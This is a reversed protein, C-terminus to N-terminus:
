KENLLIVNMRFKSTNKDYSVDLCGGYKQSIARIQKIGFGHELLDKKSTELSEINRFPSPNEIYIGIYSGKKYLKIVVLPNDEKNWPVSEIVNDLANGFLVALDMQNIKIDTDLLNILEVKAGQKIMKTYAIAIVADVAPLKSFLFHQEQIQEALNSIYQLAEDTAGSSLLGQLAIISSKLDHKIQKLKKQDEYVQRYRQEQVKLMKKLYQYEKWQVERELERNTKVIVLLMLPLLLLIILLCLLLQFFDSDLSAGGYNKMISNLLIFAILLCASSLLFIPLIWFKKQKRKFTQLYGFLFLITYTCCLTPLWVSEEYFFQFIHELHGENQILLTGLVLGIEILFLSFSHFTHKWSPSYFTPLLKCLLMMCAFLAPTYWLLGLITWVIGIGSFLIVKRLDIKWDIQWYGRFIYFATVLELSYVFLLVILEQVITDINKM